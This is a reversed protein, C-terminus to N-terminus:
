QRKVVNQPNSSQTPLYLCNDIKFLGHHNFKLKIGTLTYAFVHVVRRQSLPVPRTEWNILKIANM